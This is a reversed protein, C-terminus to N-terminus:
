VTINTYKKNSLEGMIDFVHSGSGKQRWIEVEHKNGIELKIAELQQMLYDECEDM